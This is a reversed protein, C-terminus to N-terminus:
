HSQIGSTREDKAFNGGGNRASICQRFQLAVGCAQFAKVANKDEADQNEFDINM